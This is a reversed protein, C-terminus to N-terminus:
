APLPSPSSTICPTLTPTSSITGRKLAGLELYDDFTEYSQLLRKKELEHLKLGQKALKDKSTLVKKSKKHRGCKVVMLLTEVMSFEEGDAKQLQSDDHVHVHSMPPSFSACM